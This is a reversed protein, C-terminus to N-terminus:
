WLLIGAAFGAAVLRTSNLRFFLLLTLSGIGLSWGAFDVLASRALFLAVVLM